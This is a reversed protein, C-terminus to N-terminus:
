LARHRLTPGQLSSSHISKADEIHVAKGLRERLELGGLLLWYNHYAVYAIYAVVEFMHDAFTHGFILHDWDPPKQNPRDTPTITLQSHKFTGFNKARWEALEAEASGSYRRIMRGSVGVISRVHTVM